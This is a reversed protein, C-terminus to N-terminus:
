SMFGNRLEELVVRSFPPPPLTGMIDAVKKLCTTLVITAGKSGCAAANKLMGWKEQDDNWVDDLVLLHRKQNLLELLHRQLADLYALDSSSEKGAASEIMAKDNFALRALTTKGLGVIGIIPLVSLQERDAAAYNSKREIVMKLLRFKEREVAIVDTKGTVEKMRRPATMWSIMSTTFWDRITNSELQKQEADELVAQIAKLTSSLKKTEQEMGMILGIEAQILSTLNDLLLQLFAEAM